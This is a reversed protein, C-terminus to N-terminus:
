EKRRVKERRGIDWERKREGVERGEERERENLPRNHQRHSREGRMKQRRKRYQAGAGAQDNKRREM